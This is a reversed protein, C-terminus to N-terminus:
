SKWSITPVRFLEALLAQVLAFPLFLIPAVIMFLEYWLRSKKQPKGKLRNKFASLPIGFINGVMMTRIAGLIFYSTQEGYTKILTDWTARTPHGRSDAYHQAFLIAAVENEPITESSGGLIMQIEDGDLGKELAIKTHVYSCIECGNVETVALMIREKFEKDLDKAKKKLSLNSLSSLMAKYMAVYAAPISYHRPNFQKEAM